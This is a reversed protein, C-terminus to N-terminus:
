NLEGRKQLEAEALEAMKTIANTRALTVTALLVTDPVGGGRLLESMEVLGAEVGIAFFTACQEGQEKETRMLGEGGM